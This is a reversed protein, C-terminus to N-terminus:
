IKEYAKILLFINDADAHLEIWHGVTKKLNARREEDNDKAAEAECVKALRAVHKKEYEIYDFPAEGEIYARAQADNLPKGM